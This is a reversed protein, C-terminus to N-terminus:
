PRALLQADSVLRELAEPDFADYYGRIRAEGDILVFRTSHLIPEEPSATGPPPTADVGLKFGEISLQYIAEREGTLFHWEGAVQHRRAYEALVEPRDHEPDVSISVRRVPSGEGLLEGVQRMKQTMVPCSGACRTFIFDAIWPDGRLEDLGFGEGNQDVLEFEPVETIIPLADRQMEDRVGRWLFFSVLLFAGLVLFAVILFVPVTPREEPAEGDPAPVNESM